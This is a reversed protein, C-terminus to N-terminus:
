TSTDRRGGRLAPLPRIVERETIVFDLLHDHPEIPIRDVEQVSFALGIATVRGRRSLDALAQDYYGKGYGLRGGNRDFAALPVLCIRPEIIPASDPPESLGFGRAELLDGPAWRLFVQRGRAIVPLCLELGREHLRVLLDRCDVESRIPWFGSVPGEDLDPLALAASTIAASAQARWPKDLGDRRQLSARRLAAKTESIDSEAM